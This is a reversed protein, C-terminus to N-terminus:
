ASGATARSAQSALAVVPAPAPVPVPAPAVRRRRRLDRPSPAPLYAEAQLVRLGAAPLGLRGRYLLYRPRWQPAFKENFRALRELQFRDGTRHLLWRLLRQRAPLEAVPAAMVHGFGAFNLSVEAIGRDRAHGLAVAVMAECLGNPAEAARRMADLSLGGPYHAFRLFSAIRGRPDRALVFLADDDEPEGWLRGLTMAFGQLRPQRSTWAQEVAAIGDRDGDGLQEAWVAEIGWGLRQARTVSQRLKRVPRGTLTFGRPDVIAEVGIQLARYGCGRLAALSTPSVGTMVVKWGRAAADREFSRLTEAAREPPGIPNGGVVATRGVVRYAVLGEGDIHFAKDDRLAFPDLSDRAHAAVLDVARARQASRHGASIAARRPRRLLRAARAGLLTGAALLATESWLGAHHLQPTLRGAVPYSNAIADSAAGTLALLVFATAGAALALVLTRATTTLALVVGAALGALGFALAVRLLSQADGGALQQLPLSGRLLPGAVPARERRLLYLLGLASPAAVVLAALALVARLVPAAVSATRSRTM